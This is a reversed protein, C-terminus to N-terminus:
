LTAAEDQPERVSSKGFAATFQAARESAPRAHLYRSTTALQTHGMADKVSVIDVGGAVLLSGFSHRLDHWRLPRMGAMDRARKFRRRLASGSLSRGITSCFVLDDPSTFDGRRSLRDLAATTQDAMPVRRIRGSKTEGEIGISLARSVTIASGAWDIDRWRLALLEGQRLGAYAAVRVAEADRQDEAAESETAPEPRHAGNALAMAIAEVEEPTYYILVGPAPERRKSVRLVPNNECDLEKIGYNFIAGVLSRTRNITAPKIGTAAVTDLLAKVEAPTIKSVPKDGLAAMIHGPTKRGGRKHPMGPEALLLRHSALTSPKSGKVREMWDLYGHALERFTMGRVKREYEIRERESYDRVYEAVIEAARVHARREDFYGEETRGRRRQWSGDRAKDLWAPGVRRWLQRGEYRFIADFYAGSANERIALTASPLEVSSSTM